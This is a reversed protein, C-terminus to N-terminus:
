WYHTISNSDYKTEVKKPFREGDDAYKKRFHEKGAKACQGNNGNKMKDEGITFKELKDWFDSRQHEHDLGLAHGFEHLVLSRQESESKGYLNLYM